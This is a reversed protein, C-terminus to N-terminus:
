TAARVQAGWSGRPSPRGRGDLRAFARSASQPVVGWGAFELPIRDDQWLSYYQNVNILGIFVITFRRGRVLARTFRPWTTRRAWTFRSNKMRSFSPMGTTPRM